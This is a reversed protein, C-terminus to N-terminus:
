EPGVRVGAGALAALVREPDPGEFAGKFRCVDADSVCIHHAAAQAPPLARRAAAFELLLGTARFRVAAELFARRVLPPVADGAKRDDDDGGGGGGGSLLHILQQQAAHRAGMPGEASWSYLPDEPSELIWAALREAPVRELLLLRVELQQAYGSARWVQKTPVVPPVQRGGEELLCRFLGPRDSAAVCWLLDETVLPADAPVRRAALHRLVADAVGGQPAVTSLVKSLLPTDGGTLRLPVGGRELAESMDVHGHCLALAHLAAGSIYSAGPHDDHEGLPPPRRHLAGRELLAKVAAEVNGAAAAARGTAAVRRQACLARLLRLLTWQHPPPVLDDPLADLHALLDHRGVMLAMSYLDFTGPTCYELPYPLHHRSLLDSTATLGADRILAVLLDAPLERIDGATLTGLALRRDLGHDILLRVLAVKADRPADSLCVVSLPYVHWMNPPRGREAKTETETETETGTKAAEMETDDDIPVAYQRNLHIRGRHRELAHEAGVLDGSLLACLLDSPFVDSPEISSM